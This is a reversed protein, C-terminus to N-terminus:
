MMWGGPGTHVIPARRTPKSKRKVLAPFLETFAWVLADARDPSGKGEYGAATFLCLQDELEPFAGAHSVKGIAYLAAIPEARVHKGRTARVEIIPLNPRVTRLTHRVMDGGQNIEIVVADADHLDYAAVARSAWAEPGGRCTVDDLVYGRNDDGIGAVIIGHENAGDESSIAPDVAVVIRAMEPAEKVRGDHLTLRNWIAGIAAPEYHGLWIHGYRDRSHQEDFSREMELVEPFFPNNFYNTEVIVSDPPSTPGRFFADVPDKASRPNWSFWIEAHTGDEYTKRITPRLMELSGATMTQAEEVYAIDFGELSKISETTHDAMGQFLMVGGGPTDIRDSMSHFHSGVGLAEIKDEILLKVSGRLTKQVERVCVARTGPRQFCREVLAEAFYHSKGSGRGGWAAKYRSPGLLPEFVRATPITLKM